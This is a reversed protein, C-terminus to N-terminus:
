IRLFAGACGIWDRLHEGEPFARFRSCGPLLQARVGLEELVPRCREVAEEECGAFYVHTVASGRRKRVQFQMTGSVIKGIEVSFDESKQPTQLRGRGAYRYEGREALVTVM